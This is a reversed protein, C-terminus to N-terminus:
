AGSKTRKFNSTVRLITKTGITKNDWAVCYVYSDSLGNWVASLQM